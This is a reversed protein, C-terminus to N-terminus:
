SKLQFFFMQCVNPSAFMKSSVAQSVDPPLEGDEDISRSTSKKRTRAVNIKHRQSDLDIMQNNLNVVLEDFEDFSDATAASSKRRQLSEYKISKLSEAKEV